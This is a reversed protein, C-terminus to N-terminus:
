YKAPADDSPPTSKALGLDALQPPPSEHEVNDSPPQSEQM